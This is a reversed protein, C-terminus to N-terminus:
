LLDMLAQKRSRSVSVISGDSMTLYGGEGRVYKIIENLNVIHSHHVRLFTKYSLLQEEMQKLTRCAVLKRNRKLHLVSYNDNAECCILEQAAVMEFGEATPIAIKTLASHDGRIQQLLLDFQGPYPLQKRASVKKVAIILEKIDVPKLLYDLASFRIAKLAYQDYSTTFIISFSISPLQELLQFGNMGPMEIDLFLIDPTEQSLLKLAAEASRCKNVLNVDPCYERLLIALAEVCHIEDDVIIANLM